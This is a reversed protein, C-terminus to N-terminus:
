AGSSGFRGRRIYHQVMRPTVGLREGIERVTLGQERLRATREVRRAAVAARSREPRLRRLYDVVVARRVGLRSAIQAPAIGEDSMRAAEEARAESAQRQQLQYRFAIRGNPLTEGVDPRKNQRERRGALYNGVTSRAIGLRAAIQRDTLGERHMRLAEGMRYRRAVARPERLRSHGRRPQPSARRGEAVARAAAIESDAGYQERLEADTLGRRCADALIDIWTAAAAESGM